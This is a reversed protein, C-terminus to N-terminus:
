KSKGRKVKLLYIAVVACVIIAAIAAIVFPSIGGEVEPIYKQISFEDFVNGDRDVASLRLLGNEFIDVVCFSDRICM